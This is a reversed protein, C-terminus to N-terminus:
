LNQIRTSKMVSTLIISLRLEEPPNVLNSDNALWSVNDPDM